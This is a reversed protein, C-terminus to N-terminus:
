GAVKEFQAKTVRKKLTRAFAIVAPRRFEPIVGDCGRKDAKTHAKQWRTVAAPSLGLARALARVGGCTRIISYAPEAKNVRQIELHDVTPVVPLAVGAKTKQRNM